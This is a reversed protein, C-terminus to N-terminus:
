VAIPERFNDLRRLGHSSRLLCRSGAARLGTLDFRIASCNSDAALCGPSSHYASRATGLGPDAVRPLATFSVAEIAIASIPNFRYASPEGVSRWRTNADAISADSASGTQSHIDPASRVIGNM